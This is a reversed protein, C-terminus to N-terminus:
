SYKKKSDISKKKKKFFPDESAIIPTPYMRTVPNGFLPMKFTAVSATTTGVEKLSLWEKFNM